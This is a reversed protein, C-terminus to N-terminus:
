PTHQADTHMLGSGQATRARRASLDAATKPYTSFWGPSHVSGDRELMHAAAQSPLGEAVSNSTGVLDKADM